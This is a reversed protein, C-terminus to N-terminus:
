RDDTDEQDMGPCNCGLGDRPNMEGHVCRGVFGVHAYDAHGCGRCTFM